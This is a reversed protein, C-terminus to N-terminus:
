VTQSSGTDSKKPPVYPSGGGGGGGGPAANVTITYTAITGNEATVVM